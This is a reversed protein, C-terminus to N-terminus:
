ARATFRSIGNATVAIDAWPLFDVCLVQMDANDRSLMLATEFQSQLGNLRETHNKHILPM